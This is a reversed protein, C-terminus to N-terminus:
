VEVLLKTIERTKRTWEKGPMCSTTYAQGCAIGQWELERFKDELQYIESISRRIIHGDRLTIRATRNDVLELVIGRQWERIAVIEEPVQDPQFRLRRKADDESKSRRILRRLGRQLQSAAGLIINTVRDQCDKGGLPQTDATTYKYVPDGHRYSFRLHQPTLSQM